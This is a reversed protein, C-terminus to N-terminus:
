WVTYHDVHHSISMSQSIDNAFAFLHLRLLGIVVEETIASLFTLFHEAYSNTDM